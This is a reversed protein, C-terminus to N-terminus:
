RIGLERLREIGDRLRADIGPMLPAPYGYEYYSDVEAGGQALAEDSVIYMRCGDTYGLPFTVGDDFREEVIVGIDAIAEGEVGVIRVQEGLQIGHLTVSMPECLLAGRDLRVLMKDAWPGRAASDPTDRMQQLETRSPPHALSLGIEIEATRLMPEVSHMRGGLTQLVSEALSNGAAEVDDWSKGFELQNSASSVKTDGGVGQLFLGCIHGCARDITRSAVGPYDASISYGPVTSPHCSASYLVCVPSGASDSLAYVPVSRYITNDRNAVWQATGSEDIQRRSVAFDVATSGAGAKVDVRASKAEVACDIVTRELFDLYLDDPASNGATWWTGTTPGNHTHSTNLLIQRPALDFRRGIAGRIRDAIARDFFLLDFGFIIADEDDHSIWLARVDLRDHIDTCGHEDDRSGWGFMRTGLPPTIDRQSFGAKM